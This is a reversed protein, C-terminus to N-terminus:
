KKKLSDWIKQKEQEITKQNASDGLRQYIYSQVNLNGIEDLPKNSLNSYNDQFAELIVNLQKITTTKEYAVGSVYATDYALAKFRPYYKIYKDKFTDDQGTYLYSFIYILQVEDHGADNDFYPKLYKEDTTFAEEDNL